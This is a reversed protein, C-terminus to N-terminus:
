KLVVPLRILLIIIIIIIIIITIRVESSENEDEAFIAPGPLRPMKDRRDLITKSVPPMSSPLSVLDAASSVAAVPPPMKPSSTPLKQKAALLAAAVLADRHTQIPGLDPAYAGTKFLGRGCRLGLAKNVLHPQHPPVPLWSPLTHVPPDFLMQPLQQQLTDSVVKVINESIGSAGSGVALSNSGLSFSRRGLLIPVGSSTLRTVLSSDFRQGSVVSGALSNLPQIASTALVPALSRLCEACRWAQRTLSASLCALRALELRRCRSTPQQHTSSDWALSCAGTSSAKPNQTDLDPKRNRYCVDSLESRSSHPSYPQPTLSIVHFLPPTSNSGPHTPTFGCDSSQTRRRRSRENGHGIASLFSSNHRTWKTQRSSEVDPSNAKQILTRRAGVQQQFQQLQRRHSSLGLPELLLPYGTTSIRPSTLMLHCGTSPVPCRRTLGRLCNGSLHCVIGCVVCSLARTARLTGCCSECITGWRRLASALQFSHGNTTNCIKHLALSCGLHPRAQISSLSPASASSTSDLELEADRKAVEQSSHLLTYCFPALLTNFGTIQHSM